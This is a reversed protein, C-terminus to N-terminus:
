EAEQNWCQKCTIGRCGVCFGRKNYIITDYDVFPAINSIISPCRYNVVIEKDWGNVMAKELWTVKSKNM